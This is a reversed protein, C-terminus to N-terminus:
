TNEQLRGAEEILDMTEARTPTGGPQLLRERIAAARRWREVEDPAQGASAAAQDIIAALSSPGASGALQSWKM